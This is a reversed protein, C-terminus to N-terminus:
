AGAADAIVRATWRAQEVQVDGASEDAVLYESGPLLRNLQEGQEPLARRDAKGFVMKLPVPFASGARHQLRALLERRYSSSLTRALVQARRRAAPLTAWGRALLRLEQRCIVTPDSYRLMELAAKHPQQFARRAWRETAGSRGLRWGRMRDTAPLRTCSGLTILGALREPEDLALWMGALGSEAHAACLPRDLKLADSIRAVLGALGQISLDVESGAIPMDLEPLILRLRDALRDLLFRFTYASTWLGHLLLVPKGQGCERYRLELGGDLQM